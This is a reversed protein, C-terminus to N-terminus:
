ARGKALVFVAVHTLQYRVNCVRISGLPRMHLVGRIFSRNITKVSEALARVGMVFGVCGSEQIPMASGPRRIAVDDELLFTEVGIKRRHKGGRAKVVEGVLSEALGVGTGRPVNL